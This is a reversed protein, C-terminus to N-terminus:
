SLPIPFTLMEPEKADMARRLSQVCLAFTAFFTMEEGEYSVPKELLLALARRDDLTLAESSSRDGLLSAAAQDVFPRYPEILDDALNFANAMSRHFLGLSPIFGHACLYRALGSRCLSYGYNLLGNPLDDTHRLFNREPFLSPFHIVAARAEVNGTDGSQVTPILARLLDSNQAGLSELCVAQARIKECVIRQWLRKKLPLSCELQLNTVEAQRYHLGWPQSTWAPMHRDDCGLVMISCQSMRTMLAGTLSVEPTDLILYAIDELPLRTATGSDAFEIVLNRHEVRLRAARSLHVGRWAM